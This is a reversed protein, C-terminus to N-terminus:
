KKFSEVEEIMKLARKSPGTYSRNNKKSDVNKKIEEQGHFEYSICVAHARRGRREIISMEIKSFETSELIKKTARKFFLDSFRNFVQYTKIEDVGLEKKLEDVEINKYSYFGAGVWERLLLYLKNSNVDSLSLASLLLQSTFGKNLKSFFPVAIPNIMLEVFGDGDSYFGYNAVHFIMVGDKPRAAGSIVNSEKVSLLHNMVDYVGEKLQKYAVTIDIGCLKSYDAATIRYTISHDITIEGLGNKKQMSLVIWLIRRAALTLGALAMRIDNRHYIRKGTVSSMSEEFPVLQMDLM